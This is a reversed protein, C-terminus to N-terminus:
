SEKIKFERSSLHMNVDASFDENLLSLSFEIKKVKGPEISGNSFKKGNFNVVINHASTTFLSYICAANGVNKVYRVNDKTKGRRINSIHVDYFPKLKDDDNYKEEITCEEDLYMKVGGQQINFLSLPISEGMIKYGEVSPHIGRGDRILNGHEDYIADGDYIPNLAGPNGPDELPTPPFKEKGANFFDIYDINENTTCFEIIWKNYDYLAKQYIGTAGTRPILTGIIPHINNDWCKQAMQTISNKMVQLKSDLAEQSGNNEAMAWYLDNTGGQIICYECFETLVDKDFRALIKETTDSGYGKNIINFQGKLKRNLWYQYQSMPNGTGTEAWYNPHGATISDGLTVIGIQNIETLVSYQEKILAYLFAETLVTESTRIFITEQYEGAAKSNKQIISTNVDAPTMSDKGWSFLEYAQYDKQKGTSATAFLVESIHGNTSKHVLDYKDEVPSTIATDIDSNEVDISTRVETIGELLGTTTWGMTKSPESTVGGSFHTKVNVSIPNTANYDLKLVQSNDRTELKNNVGNVTYNVEYKEVYSQSEWTVVIDGNDDRHRKIFGPAEGSVPYFTVEKLDTFQSENLRWTMRARAVITDRKQLQKRYTYRGGVEAVSTSPIVEVTEVEANNLRYCLEFNEEKTYSDIWSFEVVGPEVWEYRFDSPPVLTLDLDKSMRIPKSYLHEENDIIPCISLMLEDRPNLPVIHRYEKNLEGGETVVVNFNTSSSDPAWYKIKYSSEKDITDLWTVLLRQSNLLYTWENLAAVHLVKPALLDNEGINNYSVVSISIKESIDVISFSHEVVGGIEASRPLEIITEEKNDITYKLRFGDELESNDIFSIDFAYSGGLSNSTVILQAPSIPSTKIYSIDSEISMQENTAYIFVNGDFEKVQYYPVKTVALLNDNVYISYERAQKVDDWNLLYDEQGNMKLKVKKPKPIEDLTKHRVLGEVTSASDAQLRIMEGNKFNDNLIIARKNCKPLNIYIVEEEGAYPYDSSNRLLNERNQLYQVEELTLERNFFLVSHYEGQLNHNYTIRNGISVNPNRPSDGQFCITNLAKMTLCNEKFPQVIGNIVTKTNNWDGGAIGNYIYGGGEDPRSDFIYGDQTVSPTVSVFMSRVGELSEGKYLLTQTRDPGFVLGDQTEEMSTLPYFNLEGGAVDKFEGKLIDRNIFDYGAILGSINIDPVQELARRTSKIRYNGRGSDWELSERYEFGEELFKGSKLPRPLILDTTSLAERDIAEEYDVLVAIEEDSLARDYLAVSYIIGVQHNGAYKFLDISNWQQVGSKTSRNETSLTKGQFIDVLGDNGTVRVTLVKEESDKKYSAIYPGNNYILHNGPESCYETIVRYAGSENYCSFWSSRSRMAKSKRSIVLTYDNMNFNINKLTASERGNNELGGNRWGNSGNFTFNVLSFDNGNGSLDEWVADRGSHARGDLWIKLGDKVPLDSMTSLSVKFQANGEIDTVLTGLEDRYPEGILKKNGSPLIKNVAVSYADAGQIVNNVLESSSSSYVNKEKLPIIARMETKRNNLLNVNKLQPCPVLIKDVLNGPYTCGLKSTLAYRNERESWIVQEGQYLPTPLTLSVDSPSDKRVELKASVNLWADNSDVLRIENSSGDMEFNNDILVSYTEPEILPHYIDVPSKKLFARVAEGTNPYLRADILSHPVYVGITSDSRPSVIVKDKYVHFSDNYPNVIAQESLLGGRSVDYKYNDVAFSAFLYAGGQSTTHDRYPLSGDLTYKRLRKVITANEYIDYDEQGRSCLEQPSPYNKSVGGSTLRLDGEWVNKIGKFYPPKRGGILQSSKVMLLNKIVIGKGAFDVTTGDLASKLNIEVKKASVDVLISNGKGVTITMKKDAGSVVDWFITYTENNTVNCPVSEGFHRVAYATPLLTKQSITVEGRPLEAKIKDNLQVYEPFNMLYQVEIPNERLYAKFGEEDATTLRDRRITVTFGYSNADYYQIGEVYGMHAWSRISTMFEASCMSPGYYYINMSKYVYDSMRFSILEPHAKEGPLGERLVWKFKDTLLITNIRRILTDGIIYDYNGDQLSRLGPKDMLLVSEKSEGLENTGVMTVKNSTDFSSRMGVIPAEKYHEETWLSEDANYVGTAIIIRSMKFRVNGTELKFTLQKPYIVDDKHPVTFNFKLLKSDEKIARTSPAKIEEGGCWASIKINGPNTIDELRAIFGMPNHMDPHAKLPITIEHNSEVGVFYSHQGDQREQISFGRVNALNAFGEERVNYTHSSKVEGGTDFICPNDIHVEKGDEFVFANQITQGVVKDISAANSGEKIVIRGEVMDKSEIDTSSILPVNYGDEVKDGLINFSDNFYETALVDVGELLMISNVETGTTGGLKAFKGVVNGTTVTLSRKSSDVEASYGGLNVGVMGRKSARWVLSYTKNPEINVRLLNSYGCVEMTSKNGTYCLRSYGELLELSLRKSGVSISKFYKCVVDRSNTLGHIYLKQPLSALIRREEAGNLQAYLGGGKMFLRIEYNEGSTLDSFSILRKSVGDTSYSLRATTQGNELRFSYARLENTLYEAGPTKEFLVDTEKFDGGTLMDVLYSGNNNLVYISKEDNWELSDQVGHRSGLSDSLILSSSKEIYPMPEKISEINAAKELQLSSFVATFKSYDAPVSIMRTSWKGEKNTKFLHKMREGKMNAIRITQFFFTGRYNDREDCELDVFCSLAYSTEPELNQVGIDVYIAARFDTKDLEWRDAYIDFKQNDAYVQKATVYGNVEHLDNNGSLSIKNEPPAYHNEGHVIFDLTNTVGGEENLQFSDLGVSDGSKANVIEFSGSDTRSSNFYKLPTNNPLKDILLNEKGSGAIKTIHASSDIDIRSDAGSIISDTQISETRFCPDFWARVLIEHRERTTVDIYSQDPMKLGIIETYETPVGNICYCSQQEDWKFIDGTGFDLPLKIKAEYHGNYFTATQVGAVINAKIDDGVLELLELANGRGNSLVGAGDPAFSVFEGRREISYFSLPSSKDFSNNM